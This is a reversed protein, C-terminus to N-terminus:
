RIKSGDDTFRGSPVFRAHSVDWTYLYAIAQMVMGDSTTVNIRRRLFEHPEPRGAACHEFEDLTALLRSADGTLGYLEGYVQDSDVASPIAGPYANTTDDPDAIIYLRARISGTGILRATRRMVEGLPHKASRMLSGYVFLCPEIPRADPKAQNM